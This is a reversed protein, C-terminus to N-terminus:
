YKVGEEPEPLVQSWDLDGDIEVAFSRGAQVREQVLNNIWLDASYKDKRASVERVSGIRPDYLRRKDKIKDRFKDKKARESLKDTVLRLAGDEWKLVAYTSRGVKLTWTVDAV